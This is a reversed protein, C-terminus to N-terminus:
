AEETYYYTCDGTQALICPCGTKFSAGAPTPVEVKDFMAEVQQFYRLNTALRNDFFQLMRENPVVRVTEGTFLNYIVWEVPAGFDTQELLRHYLGFQDSNQTKATDYAWRGTKFDCLAIRGNPRQELRDATGVMARAADEPGVVGKLIIENALPADIRMEKWNNLCVLGRKILDIWPEEFVSGEVKAEAEENLMALLKELGAYKNKYYTTMEPAKCVQGWRAKENIADQRAAEYQVLLNRTKTIISLGFYSQLIAWFEQRCADHNDDHLEIVKHLVNGIFAANWYLGNKDPRIGDKYMLKYKVPCVIAAQLMSNSLLDGYEAGYTDLQKTM